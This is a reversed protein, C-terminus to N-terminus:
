DHGGLLLPGGEPGLHLREAVHGHLVAAGLRFSAIRADEQRLQQRLMVRTHQIGLNLALRALLLFFDEVAPLLLEWRPGGDNLDRGFYLNINAQEEERKEHSRTTDLSKRV